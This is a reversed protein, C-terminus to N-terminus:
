SEGSRDRMIAVPWILLGLALVTLHIHLRDRLPWATVSSPRAIMTTAVVSAGYALGIGLYILLPLTTMSDNGLPRVGWMGGAAQGPLQNQLIERGEHDGRAGCHTM